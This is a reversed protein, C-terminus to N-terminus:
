SEWEAPDGLNVESRKRGDPMPTKAYEKFMAAGNEEGHAKVLAALVEGAALGEMRQKDIAIIHEPNM